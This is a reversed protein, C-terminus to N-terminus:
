WNRALIRKVIKISCSLNSMFTISILIRRGMQGADFPYARNRFMKPGIRFAEIENFDYSILVEGEAM